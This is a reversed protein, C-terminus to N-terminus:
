KHKQLTQPWPFTSFVTDGTYRFDGKLTGGCSEFWEMHISSQLIGFSYNDEFSFAVIADAIHINSSIFEFIAPKKVTRSVIIYRQIKSIARILDPRSRWHRWWYNLHASWDEAKGQKELENRAKREVESLM